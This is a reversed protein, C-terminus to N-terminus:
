LLVKPIEAYDFPEDRRTLVLTGLTARERDSEWEAVVLARISGYKNPAIEGVVARLRAVLNARLPPTPEDQSARDSALLTVLEPQGFRTALERVSFCPKGDAIAKAYIATRLLYRALRILGEIYGDEEDKMCLLLTAFRRVRSFLQDAGPTAM